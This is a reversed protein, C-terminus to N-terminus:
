LALFLSYLAYLSIQWLQTAFDEVFHFQGEIAVLHVEEGLLGVVEVSELEGYGVATDFEEEGQMLEDFEGVFEVLGLEGVGFGM